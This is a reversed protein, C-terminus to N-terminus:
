YEEYNVKTNHGRGWKTYKELRGTKGKGYKWCKEDSIHVCQNIVLSKTCISEDRYFRNFKVGRKGMSDGHFRNFLSIGEIHIGIESIGNTRECM